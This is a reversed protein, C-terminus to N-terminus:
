SLPIVANGGALRESAAAVLTGALGPGHEWIAQTLSMVREQPQQRPFLYGRLNGFPLLGLERRQELALGKALARRARYLHRMRGALSAHHIGLADLRAIAEDLDSLVPRVADGGPARLIPAPSEAGISEAPVGWRALARALWSPLLAAQIRPILSPPDAGLAAYLPTIFAHYALEGPGAVYAVAPLAIQQLVPRLAAGPSLDDPRLSQLRVADDLTLKERGTAGDEFLPPVALDGFADSAGQELLQRRRQALSSAPWHSLVRPLSGRWLPRLRFSEVRLLADGFFRGLLRCLWAGMGEGPVPAQMELFSQGLGSGLHHHLHQLLGDFWAAAPRYRLSAHGGGLSPAYRACAGSRLVLDAHGAEGLDHDESACWFLAVAPVGRQSLATSLAIAHAAKLLTYLPGGGVAPQQGTAVVVTTPKALLGAHPSQQPEGALLEALQERQWRGGHFTCARRALDELLVVASPESRPASLSM